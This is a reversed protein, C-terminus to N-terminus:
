IYNQKEEAEGKIEIAQGIKELLNDGNFSFALKYSVPDSEAEDLTKSIARGKARKIYIRALDCTDEVTESSFLSDYNRRAM